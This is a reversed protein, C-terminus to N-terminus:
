IPLLSSLVIQTVFNFSNLSFINRRTSPRVKAANMDITLLFCRFTQDMLVQTADSLRVSMRRSLLRPSQVRSKEARTSFFCLVLLILLFASLLLSLFFLFFCISSPRLSVVFVYNSLSVANSIRQLNFSTLCDRLWSCTATLVARFHRHATQAHASCSACNTRWRRCQWWSMQSEM